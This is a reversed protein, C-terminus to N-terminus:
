RVNKVHTNHVYSTTGLYLSTEASNFTFIISLSISYFRLKVAAMNLIGEYWIYCLLSPHYRVSLDHM